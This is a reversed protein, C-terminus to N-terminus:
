HLCALRAWTCPHHCGESEGVGGEGPVDDAQGMMIKALLMYQLVRPAKPDTLSQLQEFSEFFYSYATKYDRDEAHLIGSQCDIQSLSTLLLM